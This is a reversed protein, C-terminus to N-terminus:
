RPTSRQPTSAGVLASGTAELKARVEARELVQHVAQNIRMVIAEPTGAPVSLGGFSVLTVGLVGAEALTPVDPLKPNRRAGGVALAKLKGAKVQQLAVGLVPLAFDVERSMLALVIAAAGKYPVHLADARAANLLLEMGPHSPTGSAGSAYTLKGPNQRAQAMLEAVSGHSADPHVALLLEASGLLLVPTFDKLVDYGPAKYVKMNGATPAASYIWTYGDAPARAAAQAGVNGAAGPRNDIVIPQKFQVALAEAVVRAAGDPASGPQYPLIWKIPRSPWDQAAATGALLALAPAAVSRRTFTPNLNM